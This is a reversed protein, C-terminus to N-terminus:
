DCLADLLKKRWKVQLLQIVEIVTREFKINRRLWTKLATDAM